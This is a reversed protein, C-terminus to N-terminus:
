CKQYYDGVTQEFNHHKLAKKHSKELKSHTHWIYVPIITGGKKVRGGRGEFLAPHAKVTFQELIIHMPRYQLANIFVFNSDCDGLIM